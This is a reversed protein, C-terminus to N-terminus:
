VSDVWFVANNVPVETSLESSVFYLWNCMQKLFELFEKHSKENWTHENSTDTTLEMGVLCQPLETCRACFVDGELLRAEGDAEIMSAGFSLFTMTGSIPM